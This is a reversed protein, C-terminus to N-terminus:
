RSTSIHQYGELGEYSSNVSLTLATELTTVTYTYEPMLQTATVQPQIEDEEDISIFLDTTLGITNNNPDPKPRVRFM